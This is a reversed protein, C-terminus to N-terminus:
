LISISVLVILLPSFRILWDDTSGKTLQTSLIKMIKYSFGNQSLHFSGDREQMQINLVKWFSM